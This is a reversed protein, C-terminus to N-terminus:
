RFRKYQRYYPNVHNINHDKVKLLGKNLDQAALRILECEKAQREIADTTQAFAANMKAAFYQLAEASIGASALKAAAEKYRELELINESEKEM